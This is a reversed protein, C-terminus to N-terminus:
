NVIVKRIKGDKTLEPDLFLAGLVKKKPLKDIMPPKSPGISKNRAYLPDM